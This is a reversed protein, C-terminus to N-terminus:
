RIDVRGRDQPYKGFEKRVREADYTTSSDFCLLDQIRAEPELAHALQFTIPSFRPLSMHIAANSIDRHYFYQFAAALVVTTEYDNEM